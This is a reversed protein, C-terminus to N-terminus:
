SSSKWDWGQYKQSAMGIVIVFLAEVTMAGFMLVILDLPSAQSTISKIYEQLDCCCSCDQDCCCVCSSSETSLPGAQDPVDTEEVVTVTRNRRRWVYDWLRRFM